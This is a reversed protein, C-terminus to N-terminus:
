GFLRELKSNDLECLLKSTTAWTHHHKTLATHTSRFMIMNYIKEKLSNARSFYLKYLPEGGIHNIDSKSSRKEVARVYFDSEPNDKVFKKITANNCLFNYFNKSAKKNVHLGKRFNIDEINQEQIKNINM